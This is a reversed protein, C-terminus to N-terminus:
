PVLPAPAVEGAKGVTIKMEAVANAGTAPSGTVKVTYDGVAATPTASVTIEVKDESKQIKPTNPMISVGAPLDSFTITVDQAFNDGRDISISTQETEGQELATALAPVDLTFTNDAQGLMPQESEPATTGPGGPTSQNCGCLAIFAAAMLLKSAKNM